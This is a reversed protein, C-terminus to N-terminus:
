PYLGSEHLILIILAFLITFGGYIPLGLYGPRHGKKVSLRSGWILVIVSGVLYLGVAIVKHLPVVASGKDSYPLQQTSPLYTM